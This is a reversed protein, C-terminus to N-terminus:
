WMNNAMNMYFNNMIKQQEMLGQSTIKAIQMDLEAKKQLGENVMKSVNANYSVPLM